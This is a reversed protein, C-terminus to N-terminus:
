RWQPLEGAAELRPEDLDGLRMPSITIWGARQRTVDGLPPQNDGEDFWFRNRWISRGQDDEGAPEFADHFVQGGLGAWCAGKVESAPGDPFNVTLYEGPKLDQSVPELALQVCWRPVATMMTPDDVKLNSYAIAPLGMQAAIRVAGITGSALYADALNPGSNVGSVVLDPPNEAMLGTVALMVCDGPFGDVAWATIGEGLDRPEVALEKRQFASIYNTSGSCNTMPAVVVVEAVEAFAEALAILRPNDIGDDNTILVRGFWPDALASQVGALVLLSLITLTRKM